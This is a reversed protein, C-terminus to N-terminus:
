ARGVAASPGAAEADLGALEESVAWLRRRLDEDRLEEPVEIEERDVGYFRGTVAMGEPHAALYFPTRAVTEPSHGVFPLFDLIRMWRPGSRKRIGTEVLGPNVVNATVSRDATRDALELTFLDNAVQAQDLAAKGGLEHDGRVDDFDLKEPSNGGAYAVNVVRGGSEALLDFLLNSLLFRHLYNIVFGAELGEETERPEDPIIGASLVLVDLRGWTERVREAVGRVESLLSLDAQLFEVDDTGAAAAIAEVAQQGRERTSGVVVVTAGSAALKTATAKGIGATGGTVLAVQGSLDVADDGSDGDGTM